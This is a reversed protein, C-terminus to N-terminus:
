DERDRLAAATERKRIDISGGGSFYRARVSIKVGDPIAGSKRAAKIDGRMRKALDTLSAGKTAEYKCGRRENEPDCYAPLFRSAKETAEKAEVVDALINAFIEGSQGADAYEARLSERRTANRQATAAERGAIEAAIRRANLAAAFSIIEGM